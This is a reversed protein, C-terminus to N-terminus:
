DPPFVTNYGPQRDCALAICRSPIARHNLRRNCLFHVPYRSRKNHKHKVGKRQCMRAIKLPLRSIELFQKPLSPTLPHDPSPPSSRRNARGCISYFFILITARQLERKGRHHSKPPLSPLPLVSPGRSDHFLLNRKKKCTM